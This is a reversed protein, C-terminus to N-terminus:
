SRPPRPLALLRRLAKKRAKRGRARILRRVAKELRNTGCSCCRRGDLWDADGLQYPMRCDKCRPLPTTRQENSRVLEATFADLAAKAM